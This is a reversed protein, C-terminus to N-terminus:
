KQPIVIQDNQNLGEIVQTTDDTEIGTKIDRRVLTSGDKVYVFRGDNDDNVADTPITLTNDASKLIIDADGDMGLRYRLDGNKVPLTFRIEYVTSTQGSVPTFAIYSIESTIPEDPFSDLTLTVSQGIKVSNVETQDIESKFYLSDPNIIVYNATAPTINVGPFPQDASVLIGAIPSVLVSDERAMDAIEYSIVSNDLSYQSRDLIRKINDPLSNRDVTGIYSKQDDTFKSLQTRYNNFQTQLNKQLERRDLTAIAQGRRIRDGVRAGVWVLKGSSKFRLTAIQDTSVSGALTLVEEISDTKPTYVTDKKPNFKLTQTKPDAAQSGPLVILVGLILALFLLLKLKGPM